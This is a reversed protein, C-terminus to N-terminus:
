TREDHLNIPFEANLRNGIDPGSKITAKGNNMAACEVIDTICIGNSKQSTDLIRGNDHIVLYIKEHTRRLYVHVESAYAYKVINSFQEQIVRFVNLKVQKTLGKEYFAETDLSITMPRAITIQKILTEIALNLHLDQRAPAALSRSLKRLVKTTNAAMVACTAVLSDLAAKEQTQLGGTVEAAMMVVAKKGRYDIQRSTIEVSIAKGNKKVHTWISRQKSKQPLLPLGIVKKGIHFKPRIDTIKMQAFETRSYGYQRVAAENVELFHLTEYDFIWMPKPNQHFLRCDQQGSANIGVQVNKRGSMHDHITFFGTCQGTKDFIPQGKVLMWYKQGSKSYELLEVEFPEKRQINERLSAITGSDTEPGQLFTGPRQGIVEQLEFEFTRVFSNNIWTIYGSNNIVIVACSTQRAHPPLNELAKNVARCGGIDQVTGTLRILRNKNDFIREGTQRVYRIEGSPLVIRHEINMPIAGKMFLDRHATFAARDDAHITNYFASYYPLFREKSIGFIRYTEDSWYLRDTVLDLCWHGINSDRQVNLPSGAEQGSRATIMLIM